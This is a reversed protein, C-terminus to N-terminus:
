LDALVDREHTGAFLEKITGTELHRHPANM